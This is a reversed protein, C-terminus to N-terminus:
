VVYLNYSHLLWLKYQWSISKWTIKMGKSEAMPILCM